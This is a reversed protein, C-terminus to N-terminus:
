FILNIEFNTVDCGPFCVIIISINHLIERFQSPISNSRNIFYLKLFMKKWIDYVFRPLIVIGLVKVLFNFNVM